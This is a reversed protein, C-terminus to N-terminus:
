WTGDRKREGRWEAVRRRTAASTQGPLAAPDAWRAEAVEWNDPTVEGPCHAEFLHITDRKGEAESYYTALLKLRKATVGLEERLERIAAKEPEEWPRVGGGPLLWSERDGYNHRILLLRGKAGFLMVKVGRTRLRLLGYLRRRIRAAINLLRNM